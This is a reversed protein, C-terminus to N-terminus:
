PCLYTHAASTSHVLGSSVFPAPSLGTSIAKGAALPCHRSDRNELHESKLVSCMDKPSHFGNTFGADKQSELHTSTPSGMTELEGSHNAAMKMSHLSFTGQAVKGLTDEEGPPTSKSLSSYRNESLLSGRTTKCDNERKSGDQVKEKNSDSLESHM